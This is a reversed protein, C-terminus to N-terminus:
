RKKNGTQRFISNQTAQLRPINGTIKRVTSSDSRITIEMNEDIDEFKSTTTETIDSSLTVTSDILSDVVSYLTSGSAIEDDDSDTVVVPNAAFGSLSVSFLLSVPLLIKKM